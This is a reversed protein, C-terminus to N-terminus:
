RRIWAPMKKLVQAGISRLRSSIGDSTFRQGTETIAVAVLRTDEIDSGCGRERIPEWERDGAYLFMRAHSALEDPWSGGSAHPGIVVEHGDIEFSLSMVRVPFLSANSVVIGGLDAEVETAVGGEPGWRPVLKRHIVKRVILREQDRRWTWYAVFGTFAITPASILGAVLLTFTHDTL